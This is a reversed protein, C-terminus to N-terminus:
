ADRDRVLVGSDSLSRVLSDEDTGLLAALAWMDSDRISLVVGNWDGRRQAIHRLYGAIEPVDSRADLAVLDISVRRGGVADPGDEGKGLLVAMPVNYFVALEHLRPLNLVRFGREYSGITSASWRGGSRKEVQQLSLGHQKRVSRLRRGVELTLHASSQHELHESEVDRAMSSDGSM